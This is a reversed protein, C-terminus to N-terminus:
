VRERCSARGIEYECIIEAIRKQMNSEEAHTRFQLPLLAALISGQIFRRKTIMLKM